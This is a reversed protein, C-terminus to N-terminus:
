TRTLEDALSMEYTCVFTTRDVRVNNRSVSLCFLTAARDNTTRGENTTQFRAMM